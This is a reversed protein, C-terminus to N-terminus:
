FYSVTIDAHRMYLNRVVESVRVFGLLELAMITDLKFQEEDFDQAPVLTAGYPYAKM